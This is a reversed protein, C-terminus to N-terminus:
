PAKFGKLFEEFVSRDSDFAKSVGIFSMSYICGNKKFVVARIKTPIGEVRGEVEQDLAERGNFVTRTQNIVKLERLESMLDSSASEISPDAPDNCTSFYSISNGNKSNQWAGDANSQKLPQYPLGPAAVQVNKSHEGGKPGINVSVCSATLTAIAALVFWASRWGPSKTKSNSIHILSNFNM